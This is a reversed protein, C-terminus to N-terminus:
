LTLSLLLELLVLLVVLYVSSRVVGAFRQGCRCARAASRHRRCVCRQAFTPSASLWTSLKSAISTCFYLYHCRLLQWGFYTQRIYEAVAYFCIGRAIRAAICGCACIDCALSKHRGGGEEGRGDQASERSAGGAQRGAEADRAPLIRTRSAEAQVLAHCLQCLM